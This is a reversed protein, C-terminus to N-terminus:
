NGNAPSFRDRRSQIEHSTRTIIESRITELEARVSADVQLDGVRLILGGLLDPDVRRELLPDLRMNQRLHQLLLEAQDEPLPVASVVQVRQRGVRRDHLERLAALVPRVLELREHDNLVLLFNVFVESARHAFVTRLIQRRRTRGVAAGSLLVEFQPNAAFVDHILAHMEQLVAEAQGRKDAARLLAEAYIRAVRQASVDAVKNDTTEAM